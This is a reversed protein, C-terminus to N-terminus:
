TLIRRNEEVTEKAKETPLNRKELGEAEELAKMTEDLARIEEKLAAYKTNEEETFARTETQAGTLIAQMEELKANRKEIMAKLKM